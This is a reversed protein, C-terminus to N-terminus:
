LAKKELGACCVAGSELPEWGGGADVVTLCGGATDTLPGSAAVLCGPVDSLAVDAVEAGGKKASGIPDM